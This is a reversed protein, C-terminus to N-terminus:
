NLPEFGSVQWNVFSDYKLEIVLKKEECISFIHIWEGEKWQHFINYSLNFPEGRWLIKLVNIIAGPKFEAIVELTEM